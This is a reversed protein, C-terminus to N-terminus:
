EGLNVVGKISSLYFKENRKFTFALKGCDFKVVMELQQNEDHFDLLKKDLPGERPSLQKTSDPCTDEVKAVSDLQLYGLTIRDKPQENGPASENLTQTYEIASEVKIALSFRAKICVLDSTPSKVVIDNISLDNVGVDKYITCVPREITPTTSYSHGEEQPSGLAVNALQGTAQHSNTNAGIYVGGIYQMSSWCPYNCILLALLKFNALDALM